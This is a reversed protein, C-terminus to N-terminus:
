QFTNKKVKTDNVSTDIEIEKNQACKGNEPISMMTKKMNEENFRSINDIHLDSGDLRSNLTVIRKQCKKYNKM